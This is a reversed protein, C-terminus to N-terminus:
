WCRAGGRQIAYQTQGLKWRGQRLRQLNIPYVEVSGKNYRMRLAPSGNNTIVEWRGTQHSNGAGHANGGSGEVSYSGEYSVNFAGNQCFNVYTIASSRTGSFISAETYYVLQCGAIYQRLGGSDHGSETYNGHTQAQMTSEGMYVSLDMDALGHTDAYKYYMDSVGNLTFSLQNAQGFGTFAYNGATTYLTGKLQRSNGSMNFVFVGDPSRVTGHYGADVQKLQMINTQTANVWTGSFDQGMTTSAILLLAFILSILSKM